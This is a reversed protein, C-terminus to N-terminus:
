KKFPGKYKFRIQSDNDVVQNHPDFGWKRIFYTRSKEYTRKNKRNLDEDCKITRSGFHYFLASATKGAKYGARLIRNHMDGDEFYAPSFNEDFMGPYPEKTGKEKQKLLEITKSSIMFCSFHPHEDFSDGPKVENITRMNSHEAATWLIYDSKKAFEVLNDICEPHFILDNNPFLFYDAKREMGAKIGMNWAASLCNGKPNETIWLHENELKFLRKLMDESCYNNILAVEYDHKTQISNVTKETFELHLENSIYIPITIFIRMGEGVVKENGM